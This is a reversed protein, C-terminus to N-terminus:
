KKNILWSDLGELQVIILNNDKYKGTYKNKNVEKEKSYEEKLFDLDKKILVKM